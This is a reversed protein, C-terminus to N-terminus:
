PLDLTAIEKYRIMGSADEKAGMECIAVKEISIEAWVEDKWREILDTVDFELKGRRRGKGFKGAGSSRKGDSVYITNVVTAHLKLDRDEEQVFGAKVFEDRLMKCFPILRGSIEDPAAYLISTKRASRMPYLGRLCVVLPKSGPGSTNAVPNGPLIQKVQSTETIRPLELRAVRESLLEEEANPQYITTSIPQGATNGSGSTSVQNQPKPVAAAAAAAAAAEGLLHKIDIIRLLETAADIRAKDRLNMVGLTLHITGAPRIAKPPLYAEPQSPEKEVSSEDESADSTLHPPSISRKAGPIVPDIIAKDKTFRALSTTLQYLSSNTALPLCLFHTPPPM